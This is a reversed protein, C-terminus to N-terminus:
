WYTNNSASFFYKNEKQLRTITHLFFFLWQDFTLMLPNTTTTTCTTIGRPGHNSPLLPLAFLHPLPPLFCDPIGAVLRRGLASGQLRDPDPRSLPHPCLCADVWHSRVLTIITQQNPRDHGGDVLCAQSNRTLIQQKVSYRDRIWCVWHEILPSSIPPFPLSIRFFSISPCRM